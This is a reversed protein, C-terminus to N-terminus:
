EYPIIRIANLIAIGKTPVFDVTLGTGGEVDVPFRQVVATHYGYEEAINLNELVTTGNILVSFERETEEYPLADNGLGYPLPEGKYPGTLDAFYLYVLYKGNPVDAKFADLGARQTQFLPDQTTLAIDSQFAARPGGGNRQYVREGGVYGWSGSRYEQEPIWIQGGDRDEFFRRTGMLVSIERFQSMDEPVLRFDVRQFDKAGDSGSAELVNDGDTFPVDFSTYGDHVGNVYLDVEQNAGEFRVFVKRGSLDDNLQVTKEYWGVGRWYGPEDDTCDVTNWTHPLSVTHKASDGEKHFYWSDNISREYRTAASLPLWLVFLFLLLTLRKNCM